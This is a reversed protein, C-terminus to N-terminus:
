AAGETLRYVGDTDVEIKLGWGRLDSVRARPNLVGVEAARKALERNAIPGERLISLVRGCQSEAHPKLKGAARKSTEPDSRRAHKHPEYKKPEPKPQAFLGFPQATQTM